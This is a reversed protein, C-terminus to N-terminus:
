ISASKSPKVRKNKVWKDYQQIIIRDDGELSLTLMDEFKIGTAKILPKPIIVGISSHFM